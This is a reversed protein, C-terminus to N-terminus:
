GEEPCGAASDRRHERLGKHLAPGVGAGWQFAVKTCGERRIHCHGANAPCQKESTSAL